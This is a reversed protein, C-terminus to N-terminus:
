RQQHHIKLLMTNADHMLIVHTFTSQTKFCSVTDYWMITSKKVLSKNEM